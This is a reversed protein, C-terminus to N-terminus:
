DQSRSKLGLYIAIAIAFGAFAVAAALTGISNALRELGMKTLSDAYAVSPTAVVIMALVTRKM